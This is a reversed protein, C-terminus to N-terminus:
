LIKMKLYIHLFFLYKRLTKLMDRCDDFITDFYSKGSGGNIADVLLKADCEFICKNNRWDKTWSLAERLGMAEAECPQMKQMFVNSRARVFRGREDRVVCGFGVRNSGVICAVDTNIKIWGPPPKCWVRSGREQQAVQGVSM